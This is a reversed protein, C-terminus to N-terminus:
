HLSKGQLFEILAPNILEPKEYQPTHGCSDVTLLKLRPIHSQIKAANEFPIVTDQKGWILLVPMEKKGLDAYEREMRDLPMYRVTSLIARKYGKYVLQSIYKKQLDSYDIENYFNSKFGSKFSLNGFVNTIYEGLLPVRILGALIGTKMPMGAPDILILKEIMEPHRNAFHVAIAGGMSVGALHFRDLKMQKVFDELQSTFLNEDYKLDPRDSFGRGYLDYRFVHFHKALESFNKDWIPYPTSFGHVLVLAERNESGAEEYHTFGKQLEVFKESSKKRFNEDLIETEGHCLFYPLIIVAAVLFLSIRKKM